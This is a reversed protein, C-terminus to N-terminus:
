HPQWDLSALAKKESEQGGPAAVYPICNKCVKRGDVVM